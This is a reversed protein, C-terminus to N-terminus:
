EIRFSFGASSDDKSRFFHEHKLVLLVLVCRLFFSVFFKKKWIRLFTIEIAKFFFPLVYASFMVNLIPTEVINTAKKLKKKIKIKKIEIMLTVRWWCALSHKYKTKFLFHDTFQIWCKQYNKAEIRFALHQFDRTNISIICRKDKYLFMWYEIIEIM